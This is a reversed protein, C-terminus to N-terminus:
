RACRGGGDRSDAPVETEEPTESHLGAMRELQVDSAAQEQHSPKYGNSPTQWEPHETYLHRTAATYDGDFEYRVLLGYPDYSGGAELPDANTSFVNFRRTDTHFTASSDGDSGPRLWREQTGFAKEITWKHKKTLLEKFEDTQNYLDGAKQQDNLRVKPLKLSPQREAKPAVQDFQSATAILYSRDDASITPIHTLSGQILEYGLTPPAVAYGGEGRTEILTITETKGDAQYEVEALKKNGPIAIKTCIYRIHYGGSPTRNLVLQDFLEPRERKVIDAFAKYACTVKDPIKNDFDLTELGGSSVQGCILAIGYTNA